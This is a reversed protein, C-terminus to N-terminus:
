VPLNEEWPFHIWENTPMVSFDPMMKCHDTNVVFTATKVEGASYTSVLLESLVKQTKGSDAIEDVLLIKKNSLDVNPIHTITLEKQSQSEYSRATITTVNRVGLDRALLTLPVLGGIAIGILMDPVFGSERVRRALLASLEEVEQWSLHKIAPASTM